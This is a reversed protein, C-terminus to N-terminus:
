SSEEPSAIAAAVMWKVPFALSYLEVTGGVVGACSRVRGPSSGHTSADSKLFFFNERSHELRLSRLVWRIQGAKIVGILCCSKRQFIKLFESCLSPWSSHQATRGSVDEKIRSEDIYSDLQWGAAASRVTEDARATLLGSEL